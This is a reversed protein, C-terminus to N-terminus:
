ITANSSCSPDGHFAAIVSSITRPRLAASYQWKGVPQLRQPRYFIGLEAAPPWNHAIMNALSRPEALAVGNSSLNYCQKTEQRASAKLQVTMEKAVRRM